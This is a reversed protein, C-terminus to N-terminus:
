WEAGPQRRESGGRLEFKALRADLVEVLRDVHESSFTLPPRIKLVNTHPGTLGILIGDHRLETALRRGDAYSMPARAARDAVLDLGWFLGGGQVNGIVNHRAALEALQTSLRAGMASANHLLQQDEIVDLVSNAVAASVPNGGFTNFYSRREAFAAAIEPTTVVAAVPHGAGMPKGITVIDPVLGYSTHGWFDNGLRCYGSQVEDAIVLGGAAHILQACQEVYGEPAVLVGNSDWSPDVLWAAPRHGRQNLADLEVAVLDAYREGLTAGDPDDGDPDDGDPDDGDPDDRRFRGRYDNPADIVGLWDPRDAAPYGDTSLLSVLSSNGHYSHDSVVVGHQGTVTRAIEVALDNAETGTCVFYCTQLGGPLMSGLREALRVVEEHLYRTHTNLQAAQGALAAVVRPHAHGVSPVNNYCDLLRNGDADTVWVDEGRVLHVPDDYFLQYSPALAFERRTRLDNNMRTGNM